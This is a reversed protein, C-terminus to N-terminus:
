GCFACSPVSLKKPSSPTNLIEYPPCHFCDGDTCDTSREKIRSIQPSNWLGPRLAVSYQIRFEERILTILHSLPEPNLLFAYLMPCPTGRSRV